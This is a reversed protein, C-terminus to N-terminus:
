RSQQAYAEELASLREEINRLERLKLMTDIIVTAARLRVTASHAKDAMISAIVTIAHEQYTLLRRTATNILEGEAASLARKFAGDEALWRHLTRLGVKADKAAAAVNKATLLSTIARQQQASIENSDTGNAAM